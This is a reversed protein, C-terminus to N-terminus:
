RWAGHHHVHPEGRLGWAPPPGNNGPAGMPPIRDILPCDEQYPPPPPLNSVARPRRTRPPSSMPPPGNPDRNHHHHHHHHHPSRDGGIRPSLSSPHYGQYIGPPSPSRRPSAPHSHYHHHHGGAAAFSPSLPPGALPPMNGANRDPIKDILLM